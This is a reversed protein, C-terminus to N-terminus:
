LSLTWSKSKSGDPGDIEAIIKYRRSVGYTAILELQSGSEAGSEGEIAVSEASVHGDVYGQVRGFSRGGIPSACGALNGTSKRRLDHM